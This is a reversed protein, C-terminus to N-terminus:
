TLTHDGRSGISLLLCVETLLAISAMTVREATEWSPVADAAAVGGGCGSQTRLWTGDSLGVFLM